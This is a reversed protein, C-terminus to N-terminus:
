SVDISRTEREPQSYSRGNRLLALCDGWGEQYGEARGAMSSLRLAGTSDGAAQLLERALRIASKETIKWAGPDSWPRLDPALNSHDSLSLSRCCCQALDVM